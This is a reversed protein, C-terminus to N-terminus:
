TVLTEVAGPTAHVALRRDFTLLTASHRVAVAVLYAATVQQHGLVQSFIGSTETLPPLADIFQHEADATLQSLLSVAEAATKRAGVATPNCSLRVFGLQTLVCTAWQPRPKRGLRTVLQSHFQHNSWGLALLANVDLLLPRESPAKTM